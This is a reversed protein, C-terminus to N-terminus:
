EKFSVREAARRLVGNSVRRADRRCGYAFDPSKLAMAAFEICLHLDPLTCICVCLTGDSPHFTPTQWGM